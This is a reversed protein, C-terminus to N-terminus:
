DYQAIREMDEEDLDHRQRTRYVYSTALTEPSSLQESLDSHSRKRSTSPPNLTSTEPTTRVSTKPEETKITPQKRGREKGRKIISKTCQEDKIMPKTDEEKKIVSRTCEKTAKVKGKERSRLSEEQTFEDYSLDDDSEPVHLREIIVFINYEQGGNTTRFWNKLLDDTAQRQDASQSLFVPDTKHVATALRLKDTIRRVFTGADRRM